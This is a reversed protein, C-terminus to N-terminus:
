DDPVPPLPVSKGAFAHTCDACFNLVGATLVYHCIFKVLNGGADRKWEGTWKGDAYIRQHGSHRFSPSFTPSEMNGDFTWSDPLPHMEECAPCWHFYMGQGRRLKYSVQSM